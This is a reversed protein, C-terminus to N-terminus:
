NEEKDLDAEYEHIYNIVNESFGDIHIWKKGYSIGNKNSAVNILYNYKGVPTQVSDSTQEDTIVILREYDPVLREVDKLAQGLMTSQMAQSKRIADIGAMGMRYPVEVTKNSFSFVRVDDCKIVSALAAAADICSLDSKSSLASTMSGSIDVLVVTKGTLSKTDKVAAIMAEDLQPEYQPCARAAAVFRFPLVYEAGKRNLIAQKVMTEDVGATAMNRLNRLLAMYGLKNEFLLREFTEKKDAGGSLSVEWTDPSELKGDILKKWLEAQEANEPKAHSLFLVDRLKVAADRNYKALQYANFKKFARGLGKKMQASMVSKVEATTVGNMKAHVAVLEALEDARTVTKEIADGPITTGSGSKALASLLVLPIHRLKGSTRVEYALAALQDAPVKQALAYVRNAIDEGDEYFGKEWLMCSMVSRRLTQMDSAKHTPVGEHTTETNKNAINIKM